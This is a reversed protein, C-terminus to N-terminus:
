EEGEVLVIFVEALSSVTHEGNLVQTWIVVPMGTFDVLETPPWLSCKYVVPAQPSLQNPYGARQLFVEDGPVIEELTRVTLRPNPNNNDGAVVRLYANPLNLDGVLAMKRIRAQFQGAVFM